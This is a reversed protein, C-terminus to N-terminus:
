RAALGADSGTELRLAAAQSKLKAAVIAQWLRKKLPLKAAIQAAMREVQTTHGQIPLMMGAPLRNDGCVVVASGASCLSSLAGLTFSLQPQSAIVVAIEGVPITTEGATPRKVVLLGHRLSVHAPEESLDLIRDPV